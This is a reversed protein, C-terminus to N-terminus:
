HQNNCFFGGTVRIAGQLISNGRDPAAMAQRENIAAQAGVHGMM